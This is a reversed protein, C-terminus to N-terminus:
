FYYQFHVVFCYVSAGGARKMAGTDVDELKEVVDVMVDVMVDGGIMMIGRPAAAIGGILRRLVTVIRRVALVLGVVITATDQLVAPVLGLAIGTIVGPGTIMADVIM